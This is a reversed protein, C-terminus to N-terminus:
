SARAHLWCGKRGHHQHFPCDHEHSGRNFRWGTRCVESPEEFGTWGGDHGKSPRSVCFSSCRMTQGGPQTGSAAGPRNPASTASRGCSHRARSRRRDGFRATAGATHLGRYRRTHDRTGSACADGATRAPREKVVGHHHRRRSQHVGSVFFPLVCSLPRCQPKGADSGAVCSFLLRPCRCDHEFVCPPFFKPV